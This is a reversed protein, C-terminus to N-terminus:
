PATEMQVFESSSLIEWSSSLAAILPAFVDLAVSSAMASPCAFYMLFYASRFSAKCKVLLASASIDRRQKTIAICMQLDLILVWM